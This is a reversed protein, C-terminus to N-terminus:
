FTRLFHLQIKKYFFRHNKMLFSNGWRDILPDIIKAMSFSLYCYSDLIIFSFIDWELFITIYNRIELITMKHMDIVIIQHYLTASAKCLLFWVFARYEM